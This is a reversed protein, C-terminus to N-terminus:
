GPCGVGIVPALNIKAKAAQKVLDKLMDTM